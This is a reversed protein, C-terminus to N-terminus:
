FHILLTKSMTSKYVLHLNLVLFKRVCQYKIKQKVIYMAYFINAKTVM